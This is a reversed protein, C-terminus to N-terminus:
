SQAEGCPCSLHQLGPRMSGPAMADGVEGLLQGGADWEEAQWLCAPLGTQTLSLGRGSPFYSDADKVHFRVVSRPQGLLPWTPPYHQPEGVGSLEGQLCLVPFAM